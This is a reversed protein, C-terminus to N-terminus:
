ALYHSSFFFFFFLSFFFVDSLGISSFYNNTVLVHGKGKLGEMLGLVLNRAMNGEGVCAPAQGKPKNANKDCYIEFNYVFKSKSDALCWVKMGWKELKNLMYQRTPCYSGKYRIMMEDVTVYKELNWERMCARRIDDVLWRVKGMKDYGPEGRTAVYSNPNTIHLCKSIQQFRDCSFICSNVPCHFFGGKREWYIKMNPQRKLGMFMSIAFFAKLGAVLLRRWRQGRPANGEGDVMTAYRNIKTCIKRL